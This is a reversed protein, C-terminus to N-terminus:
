VAEPEPAPEPEVDGAAGALLAELGARTEADAATNEDLEDDIRALHDNIPTLDVSASAIKQGLAKMADTFDSMIKRMEPDPKVIVEVRRPRHPKFLTTLYDCLLRM